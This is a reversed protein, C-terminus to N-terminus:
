AEGGVSAQAQRLSARRRQWGTALLVFLVLLSLVVLIVIGRRRQTLNKM